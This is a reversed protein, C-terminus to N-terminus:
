ARKKAQKIRLQGAALSSIEREFGGTWKAMVFADEPTEATIEEVM